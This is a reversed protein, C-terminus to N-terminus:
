RAAGTPAPAARNVVLFDDASVEGNTLTKLKAALAWSPQTVRRRTRSITVRDFGTQAAVWDDNKGHKKMWAELTMAGKYVLHV